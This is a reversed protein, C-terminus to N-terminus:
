GQTAQMLAAHYGILARQVVSLPPDDGEYDAFERLFEHGAPVADLDHLYHLLSHSRDVSHLEDGALYIFYMLRYLEYLERFLTSTSCDSM